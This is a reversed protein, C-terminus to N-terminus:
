FESMDWNGERVLSVATPIVPRTDISGVMTGNSLDFLFVPLVVLVAAAKWPMAGSGAAFEKVAAAQARFADGLRERYRASFVLRIAPLVLVFLPWRDYHM